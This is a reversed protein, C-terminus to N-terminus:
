KDPVSSAANTEELLKKWRPNDPEQECLWPLHFKAAFWSKKAVSQVATSSRYLFQKRAVFKRLDDEFELDRPTSADKQALFHNIAIKPDKPILRESDWIHVEGDWSSTAIRSGDLSFAGCIIEKEQRLDWLTVATQPDIIHVTNGRSLTAFQSGGSFPPFMRGKNGNGSGDRTKSQLLPAGTQADWIRDTKDDSSTAIRSGDPSFAVSYVDGDHYM